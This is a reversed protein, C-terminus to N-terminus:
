KNTKGQLLEKMRSTFNDEITKLAERKEDLIQRYPAVIQEYNEEILRCWEDRSHLRKGGRISEFMAWLYWKDEKSKEELIREPCSSIFNLDEENLGLMM